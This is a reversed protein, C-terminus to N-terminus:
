RTSPACPGKHPASAARSSTMSLPTAGTAPAGAFRALAGTKEAERRLPDYVIGGDAHIRYEDVPAPPPAAPGGARLAAGALAAALLTTRM